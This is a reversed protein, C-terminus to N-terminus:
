WVRALRRHLSFTGQPKYPWSEGGAKAMPLLVNIAKELVLVPKFRKFRQNSLKFIFLLSKVSSIQCHTGLFSTSHQSPEMLLFGYVVPLKSTQSNKSHNELM